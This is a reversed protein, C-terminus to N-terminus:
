NDFVRADDLVNVLADGRKASRDLQALYSSSASFTVSWSVRV